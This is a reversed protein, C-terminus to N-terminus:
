YFNRWVAHGHRNFYLQLGKSGMGHGVVANNDSLETNGSLRQASQAFTSLMDTNRRWAFIVNALSLSYWDLILDVVGTNNGASKLYGINKAHVIQANNKVRMVAINAHDKLYHTFAEKVVENDSAIYVYIRDTDSGEYTESEIKTDPDSHGTINSHDISTDLRRRHGRLLGRQKNSNNDDFSNSTADNVDYYHQHLLQRRRAAATAAAAANARQGRILPIEQVIREEIHKFLAQGSHSSTSNLWDHLEKVAADWGPDTPGVLREFHTFQCRLHIAADLRPAYSHPLTMIAHKMNSPVGIIRKEEDEAISGRIFPGRVLRQLAHRDHCAIDARDCGTVKAVCEETANRGMYWGSFYKFGDAKIIVHEDLPAEGGIHRHFDYVKASKAFQFRNGGLLSPFAAAVESYKPFGCTLVSCMENIISNDDILIERGTLLAFYYAAPFFILFNGIGAGAGGMVLFKRQGKMNAPIQGGLDPDRCYIIQHTPAPTTTTAATPIPVPPPTTTTVDAGNVQHKTVRYPAFFISILAIAFYKWLKRTCFRRSSEVCPLM